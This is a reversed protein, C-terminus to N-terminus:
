LYREKVVELHHIVHGTLIYGLARVSIKSNSATGTRLLMEENFGKFMAISSKRVLSFEKLLEIFPINNANSNEVFDDENFGPLSTTDNRSIRLARYSMVREVEILHMVLEKVTWKGEAYAYLHKEEPLQALEDFLSTLSSQLSELISENNRIAKSVYTEYFSHYESKSLTM